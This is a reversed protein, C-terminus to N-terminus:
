PIWELSRFALLVETHSPRSRKPGCLWEAEQADLEPVDDYDLVEYAESESYGEGDPLGHVEQVVGGRVVVQVLPERVALRRLLGATLPRRVCELWTAALALVVRALEEQIREQWKM